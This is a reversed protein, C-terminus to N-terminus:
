ICVTGLLPVPVCVTTSGTGGTTGGTTGAVLGGLLTTVTGVIGQLVGTDLASPVPLGAMGSLEGIIDQTLALVLSPDPAGSLLSTLEAPTFQGGLLVTLSDLSPTGANFGSLLASLQGPDLKTALDPVGPVLGNLLSTLTSLDMLKGASGTSIGLLNLKMGTGAAHASSTPASCAYGVRAAQVRESHTRAAYVLRAHKLHRKAKRIAAARHTHRAKRLAKRAKVVARHSSAQASKALTWANQADACETTVRGRDPAAAAASAPQLLAPGIALSASVAMTLVASVARTTLQM